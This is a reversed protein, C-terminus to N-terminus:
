KQFFWIKKQLISWHYIGTTNKKKALNSFIKLQDSLEFEGDLSELKTETEM